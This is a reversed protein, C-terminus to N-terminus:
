FSGINLHVAYKGETPSPNIKIGYGLSIVGLPTSFNLSLGYSSRIPNYFKLADVKVSGIDYFISTFFSTKLPIRIESKLLYFYSFDKIILQNNNNLPLEAPSPFRDAGGSYGRLSSVGGLLFAFSSPIGSQATSLLNKEYALSLKQAWTLKGLTLYYEANTSLQVFHINKSGKFIPSTYLIKLDEYHGKSPNFASNRYDFINFVSTSNIINTNKIKKDPSQETIKNFKILTWYVSIYQSLQKDLSLSVSSKDRLVGYSNTKANFDIIDKQTQIIISAKINSTFLFPENYQLSTNYEFINTNIKNKLRLDAYLKKATGKINRKEFFAGTNISLANYQSTQLALKVNVRTRKKEKLKITLDKNYNKDISPTLNIKISSFIGLNELNFYIKQLIDPTILSGKKLPIAKQITLLKTFKNGTIVSQNLRAKQGKIIQYHLSAQQQKDYTILKNNNKFRADMYAKNKLFNIITFLDYNSLDKIILRSDVKLNLLNQISNSETKTLGTWRIQKIRSLPGKHIVFSINILHPTLWQEKISISKANLYGQHKLYLIFDKLANQILQSNYVYSQIIPDAHKLFVNKYVKSSRKTEGLFIIQNIKTQKGPKVQIIYSINNLFKRQKIKLQYKFFGNKTYFDKLHLKLTNLKQDVTKQKLAKTIINKAVYHLTSKNVIVISAQTKLNSKAQIPLVFFIISLIFLCFLYHYNKLM